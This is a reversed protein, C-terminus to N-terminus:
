KLLLTMTANGELALQSLDSNLIRAKINRVLMEKDNDLAIYLPYPAEYVLRNNINQINPIVALISKRSHATTDYSKLPLSLLEVVLSMPTFSVMITRPSIIDFSSDINLLEYKSKDYGLYENLSTGKFSISMDTIDNQNTPMDAGVNELEDDIVISSIQNLSSSKKYFQNRLFFVNSLYAQTNPPNVAVGVNNFIMIPYLKEGYTYDEIFLNGVNNRSTNYIDAHMKGNYLNFAYYYNNTSNSTSNTIIGDKIVQIAIGLSNIIIGYKIKTYDINNKMTDPNVSCLGVVIKVNAQNPNAGVDLLSRVRFQMSGGGMVFPTTSFFWSDDNGDIGGDRKYTGGANVVFSTNQQEVDTDTPTPVYAVSKRYQIESLNSTNQTILFESGNYKKYLPESPFPNVIVSNIARNIDLLLEKFNSLMYTKNTLSAKLIEGNYIEVEIEDNGNDIIISQEDQLITLNQLAISSKPPIILDQYLDGDFVADPDQTELRVLTNSM